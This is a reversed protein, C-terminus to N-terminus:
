SVLTTAVWRLLVADRCAALLEAQETAAPGRAEPAAHRRRLEVPPLVTEGHFPLLPGALGLADLLLRFAQFGVVRVGCPLSTLGYGHISTVGGDLVAWADVDPLHLERPSARPVQQRLAWDRVTPRHGPLCEFVTPGWEGHRFVESWCGVM